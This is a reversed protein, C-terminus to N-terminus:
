EIRLQDNYFYTYDDESLITVPPKSDVYVKVGPLLHIKKVHAFPNYETIVNYNNFVYITNNYSQGTGYPSSILGECTEIYELEQTKINFMFVKSTNKLVTSSYASRLGFVLNGFYDAVFSIPKNESLLEPHTPLIPDSFTRTKLDFVRIAVSGGSAITYVKDGIRTAGSYPFCSISTVTTATIGSTSSPDVVRFVQVNYNSFNFLTVTDDDEYFVTSYNGYQEKLQPNSKVYMSSRGSSSNIHFKGKQGYISQSSNTTNRLFYYYNDNKYDYAISIVYSIESPYTSDIPVSLAPICVGSSKLGDVGCVMTAYGSSSSETTAYGDTQTYILGNIITTDRYRKTGEIVKHIHTKAGKQFYWEGLVNPFGGSKTQTIVQNVKGMLSGTTESGGTDTTNGIKEYLETYVENVAGIVTKSTTQLTPYETSLSLANIQEPTVNHPNARSAIHNPMEAMMTNYTLETGTYGNEVAVTYASKGDAGPIGQIGQPGQAGQPGQPGEPGQIGDAGKAGPIGQEGQAGTPGQIGQIGQPGQPGQLQGLSIWDKTNESWIYINKDASVQYAYENGTPIASKLEGLTPYVDQIVFSRGDAGDNGREGQPGQPGQAGAPGQAGTSGKPGVEGQIGRPGQAGTTGQIGQPGQPGVIGQQGQIGQPGQPGRVSIPNPAIATDQITFSMVGNSDISPVIAPGLNGTDGKIGQPGQDGKDGKDGKPGVIGNVVTEGNIDDVTCDNFRLRSRQPKATGNKDLILHGSSGTAQWIAGDTSTEIVKDNNVRIYKIDNSKYKVAADLEEQMTKGSTTGINSAGVKGTLAPILQNNIYNKTENHLCQMDARVASENDQYTPFDSPKTWDKTFNINNIAM